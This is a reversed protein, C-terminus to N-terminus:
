EKKRDRRMESQTNSYEIRFIVKIQLKDITLTKFCLTSLILRIHACGNIGNYKVPPCSPETCIHSHPWWCTTQVGRGGPVNALTVLHRNECCPLLNPIASPSPLKLKHCALKADCHLRDNKTLAILVNETALTVFGFDLFFFHIQDIKMLKIENESTDIDYCLFQQNQIKPITYNPPLLRVCNLFYFHQGRPCMIAASFIMPRM